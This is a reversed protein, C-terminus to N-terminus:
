YPDIVWKLASRNGLRYGFTELPLAVLTLSPNVIVATKDKQLRLKDEVKYSLPVDPMEPWNLRKGQYLV